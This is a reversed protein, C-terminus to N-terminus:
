FLAYLLAVTGGYSLHSSRTGALFLTMPELGMPPATEQIIFKLPFVLVTQACPNVSMARSLFQYGKFSETGRKRKSGSSHSRWSTKSEKERISQNRGAYSDGNCDMVGQRLHKARRNKYQRSDRDYSPWGVSLSCRLWCSSRM